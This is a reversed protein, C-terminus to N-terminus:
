NLVRYGRGSLCKKTIAMENAAGDFAGGAAGGVAGAGFSQAIITGNGGLVLALIGLLVGGAAAGIGASETAGMAQKSLDQCEALDQSYNKGPSQKLDVVPASIAACGMLSTITAAAILQKIM